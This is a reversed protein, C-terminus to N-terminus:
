TFRWLHINYSRPVASLAPSPDKRYTKGDVETPPLRHQIQKETGLCLGEKIHLICRHQVGCIDGRILHYCISLLLISHAHLLQMVMQECGHKLWM